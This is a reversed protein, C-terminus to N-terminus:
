PRFFNKGACAITVCPVSVPLVAPLHPIPAINLGQEVEPM